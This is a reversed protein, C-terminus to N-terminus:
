WNEDAEYGLKVLLGGYEDKFYRVHEPTFHNKWDGPIGRRYHSTVDEQGRRRGGAMKSFNKKQIIGELASASIRSLRRRPVPFMPVQGPMFRRGRQNLRNMKLSAMGIWRRVGEPEDQDLLDLFQAVRTFGRVPDMTLEEMKLELIHEQGYDWTFMEKLNPRSFEMELLLGEEKPVNQLATRHAELEPWNRTPHSYLHSFFASVIVDRPDRVVHFGRYVRLGNVYSRNANTYALFDTRHHDVFGELSGMGEFHIPQHVINFKIGMHFCIEMLVGDVWGTACKHHGFFARLPFDSGINRRGMEEEMERGADTTKGPLATVVQLTRM